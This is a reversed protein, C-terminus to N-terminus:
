DTPKGRWAPDGTIGLLYDASVQYFECLQYFRDLNTGSKGNEIDSVQTRTVGLLDAVAKQSLNNQERLELLRAGFLRKDFM